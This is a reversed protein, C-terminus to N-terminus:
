QRGELLKRDLELAIQRVYALLERLNAVQGQLQRIEPTVDRRECEVGDDDTMIRLYHANM